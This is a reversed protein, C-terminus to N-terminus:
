VMTRPQQSPPMDEYRHGTMEIDRGFKEYSNPPRSPYTPGSGPLPNSIEFQQQQQHRTMRKRKRIFLFLVVAVVTVVAAGVGM